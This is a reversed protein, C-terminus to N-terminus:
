PCPNAGLLEVAGPVLVDGLTTNGLQAYQNSGWCQVGCAFVGCNTGVAASVSTVGSTLGTVQVPVSSNATANDGLEGDGGFGWCMVDGGATLACATYQGVSVATVGSTLGTVQV